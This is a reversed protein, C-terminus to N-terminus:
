GRENAEVSADIDHWVIAATHDGDKLKQLEGDTFELGDLVVPKEGNQGRFESEGSIAQEIQALDAGKKEPAATAESGSDDDGCGAAIVAAGLAGLLVLRKLKM